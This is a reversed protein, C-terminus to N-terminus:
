SEPLMGCRWKGWSSSSKRLFKSPLHGLLTLFLRNSTHYTYMMDSFSEPSHCCFAQRQLQLGAECHDMVLYGARRFKEVKDRVKHFDKQEWQLMVRKTIRDQKAAMVIGKAQIGEINTLAYDVM